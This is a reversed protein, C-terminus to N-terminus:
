GVLACCLQSCCQHHPVMKREPQLIGPLLYSDGSVEKRTSALGYGFAVRCFCSASGPAVPDESRQLIEIWLKQAATASTGVFTPALQQSVKARRGHDCACTEEVLWPITVTAGFTTPKAHLWEYVTYTPVLRHTRFVNQQLFQKPHDSYAPLRGSPALRSIEKRTMETCRQAVLHLEQAAFPQQHPVYGPNHSPAGWHEPATPPHQMQWGPPLQQQPHQQQHFYPQQPQSPSYPQQPQPQQWGGPSSHWSPQQQQQQQQQWEDHHLQHQWGANQMAKALSGAALGRTYSALTALLEKV